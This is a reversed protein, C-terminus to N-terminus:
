CGSCGGTYIYRYVGTTGRVTSGRVLHARVERAAIDDSRVDEAVVDRANVDTATVDPATMSVTARVTNASVEGAVDLTLAQIEDTVDGSDSVVVDSFTGQAAELDGEFTSEGTVRLRQGVTLTNVVELGGLVRVEDAVEAEVSAIRGADVLDHGALVLDTEMVNAEPRGPIALRHLESGYVSRMTMHTIAGREGVSPEGFEAQYVGVPADIGPGRLRRTELPDVAGVFIERDGEYGADPRYGTVTGAPTVTSVLVELGDTGTRRHFVRYGQGLTNTTRFGTGLWGDATIAALTVERLGTGGTATRMADLANAAHARAARALLVLDREAAAHRQALSWGEVHRVALVVMLGVLALALLASFISLGRRSASAGRESAQAERTTRHRWRVM